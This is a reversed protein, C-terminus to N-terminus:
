RRDSLGCWREGRGRNRRLQHPELHCAIEGNYPIAYLLESGLLFLHGAVSCAASCSMM